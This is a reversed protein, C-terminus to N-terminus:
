ESESPKMIDHHRGLIDDLHRDNVPTPGEFDTSEDAIMQNRNLLTPLASEDSHSDEESDETSPAPKKNQSSTSSDTSVTNQFSSSQAQSNQIQRICKNIYELSEPNTAKALM